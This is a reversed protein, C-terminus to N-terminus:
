RIATVMRQVAGLLATHRAQALFPSIEYKEVYHLHLDRRARTIAVYLLRREEEINSATKYPLFGENVHPVIVVPWERGKARFITTITVKDETNQEVRNSLNGPQRAALQRLMQLFELLTGKGEAYDLFATVTDARAAGSEAFGSEEELYHRYNLRTELERLIKAAPVEA